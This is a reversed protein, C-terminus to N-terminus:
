IKTKGEEYLSQIANALSENIELIKEKTPTEKAILIPEGVVVAIKGPIMSQSGVIAVPIIPAGTRMALSAVGDHLRGIRGEKRRTGQPFVGLLDDNKLISIAKKIATQDTRGRGVPFAGLSKVFFRLIPNKFLEEKAMFYTPRPFALGVLPPDFNSAHNPAIIYKGDKPAREGNIIKVRFIGKLLITFFIRWFSEVMPHMTKHM